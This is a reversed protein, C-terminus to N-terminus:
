DIVEIYFFPASGQETGGGKIRKYIIYSSTHLHAVSFFLAMISLDSSILGVVPMLRGNM